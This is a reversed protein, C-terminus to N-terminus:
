LLKLLSRPYYNRGEHHSEGVHEQLPHPPLYFAMWESYNDRGQVRLDERISEITAVTPVVEEPPTSQKGSIRSTPKYCDDYISAEDGWICQGTLCWWYRHIWISAAHAPIVKEHGSYRLIPWRGVILSNAWENQVLKWLTLQHARDNAFEFGSRMNSMLPAQYVKIRRGQPNPM